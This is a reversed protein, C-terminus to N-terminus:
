RESSCSPKRPHCFGVPWWRACGPWRSVCAKRSESAHSGALSPRPERPTRSREASIAPGRRSSSSTRPRERHPAGPHRHCRAADDRNRRGSQLGRGSTGRLARVTGDVCDGVYTNGRSQRGDGFVKIPRGELLARGFIHYAMDPRQRPGFISFYRCVVVDLGFSLAYAQGLNEAALKTVGYPSVPRPLDSENGTADLGYVSSTSAMVLRGVRAARCAELLRQTAQLNCTMYQDFSTWSAPLGPMAAEHIVADAGELIAALPDSRLDREFFVYRGHTRAKTLNSEKIVRPYYPIFADLGVVEHGDALLREALHSGIFGAAGTVVIRM